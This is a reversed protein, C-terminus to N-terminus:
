RLTRQGPLRCILVDFNADEFIVMIMQEIVRWSGGGRDSGYGYPIALNMIPAKREGAIQNRNEMTRCVSSLGEYVAEYNTPREGGFEYQSYVNFIVRGDKAKAMTFRGLKDRDGKRLESDAERAEPYRQEILRAIGSSTGEALTHFCNAQHAIATTSPETNFIDTIIETVM